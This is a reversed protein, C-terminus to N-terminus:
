WSVWQLTPSLMGPGEWLCSSLPMSPTWSSPFPPFFHTLKSFLVTLIGLVVEYPSHSLLATVASETCSLACFYVVSDSRKYCLLM